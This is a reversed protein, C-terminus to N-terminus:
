KYIYNHICYSLPKFKQEGIDPIKSLVLYIYISTHDAIYYDNFLIKKGAKLFVMVGEYTKSGRAPKIFTTCLAKIEDLYITKPKGIFYTVEIKQLETDLIAGKPMFVFDLIAALATIFMLLPMAISFFNNLPITQSWKFDALIYISSIMLVIVVFFRSYWLWKNSKIITIM